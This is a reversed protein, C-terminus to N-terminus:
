ISHRIGSGGDGAYKHNQRVASNWCWEWLRWTKTKEADISYRGVCM